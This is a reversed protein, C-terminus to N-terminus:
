SVFLAKFDKGDLKSLSDTVVVAERFDDLEYIEFKYRADFEDVRREKSGASSMLHSSLAHMKSFGVDIKSAFGDLSKKSNGNLVDGFKKVEVVSSVDGLSLVPNLGVMRFNNGSFKRSLNGFCVGVSRNIYGEGAFRVNDLSEKSINLGANYLSCRLSIGLCDSSFANIAQVSLVKKTPIIQLSVNLVGLFVSLIVLGLVIYVAIQSQKM